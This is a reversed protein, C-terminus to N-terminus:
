IMLVGEPEYTERAGIHEVSGDDPIPANGRGTVLTKTERNILYGDQM